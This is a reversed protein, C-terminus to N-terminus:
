LLAGSIRIGICTLATWVRRGEKKLIWKLIIRGNMDLGELHYIKWMNEWWFDM